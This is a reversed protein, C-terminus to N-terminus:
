LFDMLYRYRVILYRKNRAWFDGLYNMFPVSQSIKVHLMGTEPTKVSYFILVYYILM